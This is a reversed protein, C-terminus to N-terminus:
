KQKVRAHAFFFMASPQRRRHVAALYRLQCDAANLNQVLALGRDALFGDINGPDIGFVFPEGLHKLANGLATAETLRSTGDAVAPSVYDFVVASGEAAHRSLFTLTEDVVPRPLYYSLGEWIFLSKRTPDYGHEFLKPSLEDKGFRIPIFAFQEPVTSRISRWRKRKIQQTAPHDLEFIATNKKLRDFRIARTDYGAGLIVLQRLGEAIAAELCDDIFRTRVAIAGCIGPFRNDWNAIREALASYLDTANCLMDSIFYRAYPDNCVRADAPQMTEFARIAANNEATMSARDTQM